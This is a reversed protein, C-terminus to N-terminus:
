YGKASWSVSGAIRQNATNYLDLQFSLNTINTVRPTGLEGSGKLTVIVEDVKYFPRNFFVTVSGTASTTATGKDFVDGVDIEVQMKTIRPVFGQSADLEVKYLAKQFEQDGVVFYRFPEYGLASDSDFMVEFEAAAFPNSRFALDTIVALSKRTFIDRVGISESINLTLAAM